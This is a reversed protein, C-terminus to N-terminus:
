WAAEAETETKGEAKDTAGGGVLRNVSKELSGVISDEDCGGTETEAAETAAKKLDYLTLNVKCNAGLKLM